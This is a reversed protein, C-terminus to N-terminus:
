ETPESKATFYGTRDPIGTRQHVMTVFSIIGALVMKELPMQIADPANNILNSVYQSINICKITYKQVLNTKQNLRVHVHFETLEVDNSVTCLADESYKGDANPERLSFKPEEVIRFAWDSDGISEKDSRKPPLKKTLAEPYQTAKSIWKLSGPLRNEESHHETKTHLRLIRAANGHGNAMAIDLCTRGDSSKVSADAGAGLLEEIIDAHGEASAAFLPSCDEASGLLNVTAKYEILLKIIEMNAYRAAYCIATRNKWNQINPDAGFSLLVKAIEFKNEAVACMLPTWGRGDQVNPEGGTQLYSTVKDVNGRSANKCIELLEYENYNVVGLIQWEMEHIDMAPRFIQLSKIARARCKGPIILRAMNAFNEANLLFSIGLYPMWWIQDIPHEFNNRNWIITMILSFHLPLFVLVIRHLILMASPPFKMLGLRQMEENTRYSFASHVSLSIVTGLLWGSICLLLFQVINIANINAGSLIKIAHAKILSFKDYVLVAASISYVGRCLWVDFSSKELAPLRRFTINLYLFGYTAGVFLLLLTYKSDTIPIETYPIKIIKFPGILEWAIILASFLLTIWRNTDYKM